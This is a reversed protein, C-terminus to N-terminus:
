SGGGAVRLCEERRRLLLRRRSTRTRGLPLGTIGGGCVDDYARVDSIGAKAKVNPAIYQGCLMCTCGEHKQHKKGQRFM